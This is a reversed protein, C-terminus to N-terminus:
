AHSNIDITHDILEWILSSFESTYNHHKTMVLVFADKYGTKEYESLLLQAEKIHNNM